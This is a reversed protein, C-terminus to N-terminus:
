EIVRNFLRFVVTTMTSNPRRTHSEIFFDESIGKALMELEELTRDGGNQLQWMTINRCQSIKEMAMTSWGRKPLLPEIVIIRSDFNMVHHFVTLAEAIEKNTRRHTLGSLLYVDASRAIAHNMYRFKIRNSLDPKNNKVYDRMSGIKDM